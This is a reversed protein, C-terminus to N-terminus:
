GRCCFFADILINPLVAPHVILGSASARGGRRGERRLGGKRSRGGGGQM